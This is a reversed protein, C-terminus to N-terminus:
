HSFATVRWKKEMGDQEQWHNCMTATARMYEDPTLGLFPLSAGVRCIEPRTEYIACTWDPLLHACSGDPKLPLAGRAAWARRCCAGCKTCPFTM